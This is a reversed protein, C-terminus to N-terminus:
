RAVTIQGRIYDVELGHFGTVSGGVGVYCFPRYTNSPINTAISLETASALGSLTAATSFYWTSGSKRIKLARWGTTVAVTSDTRTSSSSSARTRYFWNTDAAAKEIVVEDSAPQTEPDTSVGCRYTYDTTVVGPRILYIWNQTASFNFRNSPGGWYLSHSGTDIVGLTPVGPHDTITADYSGSNSNSGFSLWWTADGKAYNTTSWYLFDDELTYLTAPDSSGGGLATWTNTATCTKTTSIDSRYLYDGITCTGPDASAVKIPATSTAGASTWPGTITCAGAKNCVYANDADAVVVGTTPSINLAGLPGASVSSVAGGGSGGDGQIIFQTGDYCITIPANATIDGNSLAGGARTLISKAGLSNINITAAGTNSTDGNLVFCGGATYATLAPTVSGVYTDNGTTSRVYKDTGAQDTARTLYVATSPNSGGTGGPVTGVGGPVVVVGQGFVSAALLALIGLSRM